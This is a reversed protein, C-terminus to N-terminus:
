RAAVFQRHSPVKAALAAFVVFMMWSFDHGRFLGSELFNSGIVFLLVCVVLWAITWRATVAASAHMAAILMAGVIVLGPLGTHLATDLYGNHAHPMEAVFGPGERVSLAEPGAGWFAEYGFGLWPRREVMTLAFDWITTRSTFTPDGFIATAVMGFDWVYLADGLLYVLLVVLILAAIQIAPSVLITRSVAIVALGLLPAVIALGLATKSQSVLLLVVAGVAVAIPILRALGTGSFVKFLAVFLFLAAAGGLTNKQTYIGEHGLPGAPYAAVAGLNVAVAVAMVAFIRDIVAEPCRAAAASLLLAGLVCAQLIIRRLTTAPDISWIVSAAAWLLYVVMLLIAVRGLVRLRKLPVYLAASAALMLAGPFLLQNILNSEPQVRHLESVGLASQPVGFLLPWVLMPYALLLAPVWAALREALLAGSSQGSPFAGISGAASM